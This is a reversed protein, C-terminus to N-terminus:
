KYKITVSVQGSTGPAIRVVRDSIIDVTANTVATSEDFVVGDPLIYKMSMDPQQDKCKFTITIQKQTDNRNITPTDDLICSGYFDSAPDPSGDSTSEAATGSVPVTVVNYADFNYDLAGLVVNENPYVKKNAVVGDVGDAPIAESWSTGSFVIANSVPETFATATPDSPADNVLEAVQTDIDRELQMNKNRQMVTVSMIMMLLLSMVCLVAMAVVCEVLTFGSRSKKRIKKSKM